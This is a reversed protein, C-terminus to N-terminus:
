SLSSVVLLSGLGESTSMVGVKSRLVDSEAM